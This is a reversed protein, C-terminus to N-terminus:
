TQGNRLISTWRKDLWNWWMEPHTRLFEDVTQTWKRVAAAAQEKLRSKRTFEIPEGYRIHYAGNEWHWVIPVVPAGTRMSMIFVGTPFYVTRGFLTVPVGQEPKRPTDPTLFLMKGERLVDIAVQLRRAKSSGSNPYVLHGEGALGLGKTIRMTRRDKNHRLYISCPIRQTVVPAYLPFGCIHPAINLVGKGAAYAQELLGFSEDFRFQERSGSKIIGTRFVHAMMILHDIAREAHASVLGPRYVGALKMNKAVRTRLPIAIRTAGLAAYRLAEISTAGQARRAFEMGVRLGGLTLTKRLE